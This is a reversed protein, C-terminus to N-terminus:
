FSRGPTSSSLLSATESPEGFRFEQTRAGNFTDIARSVRNIDTTLLWRGAPDDGTNCFAIPPINASGNPIQLKLSGRREYRYEDEVEPEAEYDYDKQRLLAERKSLQNEAVDLILGLQYFTVEHHNSSVALTRTQSHIALGWASVGINHYVIPEPKLTNQDRFHHELQRTLCVEVEGNDRVLALVEEGGLSTVLLNSITESGEALESFFLGPLTFGDGINQGPFEPEYICIRRHLRRFLSQLGPFASDTSGEM